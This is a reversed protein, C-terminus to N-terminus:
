CFINRSTNSWRKMMKMLVFIFTKLSSLMFACSGSIYEPTSTLPNVVELLLTLLAQIFIIFFVVFFTSRPMVNKFRSQIIRTYEEQLLVFFFYAWEGNVIQTVCCSFCINWFYFIKQRAFHPKLHIIEMLTTLFTSESIGKIVRSFFFM